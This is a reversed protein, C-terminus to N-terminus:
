ESPRGRQGSNIMVTYMTMLSEERKQALKAQEIQGKQQLEAVDLGIKQAMEQAKLALEQRKLDLKASELQMKAQEAQEEPSPGKEQQQKMMEEFSREISEEVDRGAKFKRLGFMIIGHMVQPPMLGSQAAQAGQAMLSGMASIFETFDRKRTEDDPAVTTDSEVDIKYSRPTDNQLLEIAARMIQPDIELNSKRIITEGDFLESIIEALIRISDRVFREVRTQKRRMRSTSGGAMQAKLEQTKYAERPNTVGRMVDAIGVIEYAIELNTQRQAILKVIADAIEAIPAFAMAGKVGGSSAFAAFDEAPLMENDDGEFLKSVSDGLRPDYIGTAKVAEIMRDIRGTLRNIERDQVQYMRYEPIPELQGTTSIMDLPRPCPFFGTLGYPDDVPDALFEQHYQAVKYVKGTRKSWFEWVRAYDDRGEEYGLYDGYEDDDQIQGALPVDKGREGFEEILDERTMWSGFAVWWVDEWKQGDSHLFDKWNVSEIWASEDVKVEPGELYFGDEDKKIEDERGDITLANVQDQNLREKQREFEADYVVRVQGRGAVAYDSISNDQAFDFEHLEDDMACQTVRELLQSAVRAVPDKDGHTRRVDAKAGGTYLMPRQIETIMWLLKFKDNDPNLKDGKGRYLSVCRSAAKHWDRMRKCAAELEQHIVGITDRATTDHHERDM